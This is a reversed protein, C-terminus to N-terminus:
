VKGRLVKVYEEFGEVCLLSVVSISIYPTLLERIGSSEKLFGAEFLIRTYLRRLKYKTVDSWDAVYDAERGKREFFTMIDYDTIPNRSDLAEFYVEFIFERFLVDYNMISILNVFRADQEDSTLILRILSEPFISLRNYTYDFIKDENSKTKVNLLNGEHVENKVAQRDSERLMIEAIIKTEYFAFPVTPMTAKYKKTASKTDSSGMCHGRYSVLSSSRVGSLGFSAVSSPRVNSSAGVLLHNIDNIIPKVLHYASTM